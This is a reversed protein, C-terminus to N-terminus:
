AYVRRDGARPSASLSHHPVQCVGKAAGPGEGSFRTKPLVMTSTRNYFSKSLSRGHGDYTTIM